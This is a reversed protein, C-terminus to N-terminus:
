PEASGRSIVEFAPRNIESLWNLKCCRHLCYVLRALPAVSLLALPCAISLALMPDVSFVAAQMLFGAAVCTALFHTWAFVLELRWAWRYSRAIGVSATMHIAAPALFLVSPIAAVRLPAYILLVFCAIAGIIGHLLAVISAWNVIRYRWALLQIQDADGGDDPMSMEEVWRM